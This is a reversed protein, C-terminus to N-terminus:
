WCVRGTLPEIVLTRRMALYMQGYITDGLQADSAAVISSVAYTVSIKDITRSQVPGGAGAGGSGGQLFKTAFHAALLAHGKSAKEGWAEISIMEATFEIITDLPEPDVTSGVLAPALLIVDAHTAHEAPM